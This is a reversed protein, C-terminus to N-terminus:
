FYDSGEILRHRSLEHHVLVEEYLRPLSAITYADASHDQVPRWEFGFHAAGAFLIACWYCVSM